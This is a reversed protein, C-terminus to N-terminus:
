SVNVKDQGFPQMVALEIERVMVDNPAIATAEQDPFGAVSHTTLSLETLTFSVGLSLNQIAGKLDNYALDQGPVYGVLFSEVTHAIQARMANVIEASAPASTKVTVKTVTVELNTIETAVVFATSNFVAKEFTKVDVKGDKFRNPDDVPPDSLISVILDDESFKTDLIRNDSKVQSLLSDIIVDDEPALSDLYTVINDQATKRIDVKDAEKVNNPLVLLLAGGIQVEQTYGFLNGMVAKEVFKPQYSVIGDSIDMDPDRCWSIPRVKLKTIAGTVAEVASQVNSALIQQGLALNNFFGELSSKVAAIKDKDLTTAKFTVNVPLQKDESAVCLHKPYFRELEDAEIKNDGLKYTRSVAGSPGNVMTNIEFDSLDDVGDVSLVAKMLKSFLVPQGMKVSEFFLVLEQQVKDEFAAREDTNLNLQAVTEIRFVATVTIKSAGIVSVFVGAARVNEVADVVQLKIDDFNPTDVIVQAMGFKSQKITSTYSLTYTADLSSDDFKLTGGPALEGEKGELLSVVQTDKTTDGDDFVVDQLLRFRLASVPVTSITSGKSVTDAPGAARTLTIIGKAFHFDELVKVDLVGPLSLVANELSALNAKGSSLLANKARSRLEDDTERRRGVLVVQLANDVSKIGPIPRPMVVIQDADSDQEEGRIIAQIKVIVEPQDKALVAAEITQYVKKPNDPTDETAVLTGVPIPIDSNGKDRLFTVEGVAFDPLNRQIGLVAVVQDLNTGEASDVFGSLYVLNMKQYLLGLEYAFSEYMTRTVSGVEFDTLVTTRSRMSDYLESFKKPEFAM